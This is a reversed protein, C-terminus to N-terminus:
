VIHIVCKMDCLSNIFMIFLNPGLVSEQPVGYQVETEQGLVGNVNTIQKRKNLYSKFWSLSIGSMGYSILVKEM